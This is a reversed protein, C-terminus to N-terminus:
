PVPGLMVDFADVAIATGWSRWYNSGVREILVTHEGPPLLGTDYVTKKWTTSPSYLDVTTTSVLNAIDIAGNYLSVNARGYWPTSRSLLSLYTGNFAFIVKAGAADTYKFSNGSALWGTEGSATWTGDYILKADAIWAADDEQIRTITPAETLYGLIDLADLGICYGASSSQKTGKCRITLTHPTDALGTREYVQVKYVQSPSYFDVTTTEQVPTGADLVVEAEGYWPTTRGIVKIEAGTFDAVVAAGNQATSAFSGGSASWTSGTAWDGLYTVRPDNQQYRWQIPLAPDAGTPTGLVDIADVDVRTGSSAANKQGIWYISLNHHSNPLLGTNYVRQKYSDSSSYLDVIVANATDGDLVVKAKGYGAGKKAIWSCYKGDFAINVASGPADVSAFTGGSLSWSVISNTAWPGTYAFGAEDQQYRNPTPAQTLTGTIDLADLSISYGSSSDNKQGLCSIVLTHLGPSLGEIEYVLVKYLTTPSYLDVVQAAASEGPLGVSVQGYWPATRGLLKISTGTFSVLAAARPAGTSYFSGGSASWTSGTSWDGLYTIKPDTQQYRTTALYTFDDAVTDASGGGATTVQVQVTSAAHAPAIATIQTASDYEFVAAAGGFTVATAGTFNAGTIVVSTGGATSCTAPALGTVLPTPFVSTRANGSAMTAGDMELDEGTTGMMVWVMLGTLGSNVVDLPASVLTWQSGVTFATAGIEETGSPETVILIGSFPTDDGSRLWTSFTYSEGAELTVDVDQGVLDGSVWPTIELYGAGEHAFDSDSYNTEQCGWGWSYWGGSSHEFSANMLGANVLQAGDMDLNGGTTTMYIYARMSTHGTTIVDLSVSVLTWQPGVTFETSSGEATGGMGWLALAGSFPTDSSSRLWASFTYSEEQQPAVSVDQYVSGGSESTNMELYGAGEPAYDSDSYNMCNVSWGSEEWGSKSHELSANMLGAKLLQAGDMDLNEGTTSMVVRVEMHTHDASVVDLPVSVMTWESGVVFATACTEETGGRGLITLAGSFPAGGASRVWASFTYCEGPQPAVAVVQYAYGGSAGANMELYGAGERAISPDSYNAVNVGYPGYSSETWGYRSHEFSANTLLNPTAPTDAQADQTLGPTIMFGAAAVVVLIARWGLFRAFRHSGRRLCTRSPRSGRAVISGMGVGTARSSTLVARM